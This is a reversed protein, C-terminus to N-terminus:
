LCCFNPTLILAGASQTDPSPGGDWLHCRRGTDERSPLPSCSRKPRKKLFVLGMWSPEGAHGLWKGFAGGGLVMGKPTLVEVYLSLPYSAWVNLRVPVKSRTTNPTQLNNDLLTKRALSGILKDKPLSLLSKKPSKNERSWGQQYKWLAPKKM